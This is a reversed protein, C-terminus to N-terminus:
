KGLCYSIVMSMMQGVRLLNEDLGPVLMVEMIYRKGRRAEIVLTGRRTVKVLSGNGMEMKGTFTTDIDMLLSKHAIMHNSCGSDIYWVENKKEVKTNYACFMHTEEKVQNACNVQQTNNARCDKMVHCFKNCKHCKPKKKLWCEGSSGSGNNPRRNSNGKGEWKKFKGM